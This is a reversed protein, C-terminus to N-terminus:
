LKTKYILLGFLLVIISIFFNMMGHRAMAARTDSDAQVLTFSDFSADVGLVVVVSCLVTGADVVVVTVWLL